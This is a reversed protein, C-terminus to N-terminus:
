PTRFRVTRLVALLESVRSVDRTDAHITLHVPGRIMGDSMGVNRWTAAVLQRGHQDRYESSLIVGVVILASRGGIDETCSRYDAHAEPEPQLPDAHMGYDFGIEARGGDATYKGVYSDIGQVRVASYGPPIRMSFAGHDVVRWQATDTAPAPCPPMEAALAIPVPTRCSVVLATAALCAYSAKM